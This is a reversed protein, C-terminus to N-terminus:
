GLEGQTLELWRTVAEPTAEVGILRDRISTVAEHAAIPKPPQSWFLVQEVFDSWSEFVTLGVGLDDAWETLTAQELSEQRICVIVLAAERAGMQICKRVFIRVDSATVPKDRVEIAKEIDTTDSDMLVCVDGPHKRSPDNVRGTEVRDPGAFLDMLGAVVAQARRGGESDQEVFERIVEALRDPTIEFEGEQWTYHPQYRRRVAVFARLAARAEAEDELDNLKRVLRVTYEFAARARPHVPTGDDLRSMRFYPQNNLPERGTVGIHFGLEAALPVLVSHCLSRASFANPNGPAHTPKIAFLDARRDVAKALMATGLFAIHTNSKAEACLQSLHEVRDTWASVAHAADPQDAVDHRSSQPVGLQSAGSPLVQRPPAVSDRLAQAALERDIRM